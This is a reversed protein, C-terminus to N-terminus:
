PEYMARTTGRQKRPVALGVQLSHGSFIYANFSSVAQDAESLASMTVFALGMSEGSERDKIVETATVEGAQAFLANLDEETTSNSLNRVCLKVDM